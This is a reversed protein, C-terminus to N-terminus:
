SLPLVPLQSKYWTTNTSTLFAKTPVCRRTAREHASVHNRGRGAEQSNVSNRTLSRRLRERQNHVTENNRQFLVDQADPLSLFILPEGDLSTIDETLGVVTSQHHNLPIKQGLSVGLKKHAVAEYHARNIERGAMLKGPGGLGGFVDYGIITFRKSKGRKVPYVIFSQGPGGGPSRRRPLTLGRQPHITRQLFVM